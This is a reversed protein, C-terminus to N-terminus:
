EPKKRDKFEPGPHRLKSDEAVCVLALVSWLPSEARLSQLSFHLPHGNQGAQIANTSVQQKKLFDLSKCVLGLRYM